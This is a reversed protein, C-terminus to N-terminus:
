DQQISTSIYHKMTLFLPKVNKFATTSQLAELNKHNRHNTTLFSPLLQISQQKSRSSVWFLCP